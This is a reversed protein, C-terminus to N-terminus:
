TVGGPNNEYTNSNRITAEPNRKEVGTRSTSCRVSWFPWSYYRLGVHRGGMLHVGEVFPDNSRTTIGLGGDRVSPVPAVLSAALENYIRVVEGAM